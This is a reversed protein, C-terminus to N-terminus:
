GRFLAMARRVRARRALVEPDLPDEPEVLGLARAAEWAEALWRMDSALHPRRNRREWRAFAEMGRRRRLVSARASPQSRYM